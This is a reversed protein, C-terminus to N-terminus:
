KVLMMSKIESISGSVFRYFYVGSSLGSADFNIEYSGAELRGDVIRKIEKGLSNYVILSADGAIPLDFRISTNPNFPNPYNQHLTFTQPIASNVPNIITQTSNGEACNLVEKQGADNQVFAVTLISTDEWEPEIKYKFTFQQPGANTNIVTGQMDPLGKRFVHEFIREGNTGPPTAYVIEKEIVMVRLRYNGSPLSQPISINIVASISDQAIRSDIVSMTLQPVVAKRSNFAADLNALTFPWIDPFMNGDGKLWPVANVDSYYGGRREEVQVPNLNYMPDFGPFDTHYMIAVITDGKSDIYTKLFPNNAACPGCSANTFEEFLVKKDQAFLLSSILLFIVISFFTKM